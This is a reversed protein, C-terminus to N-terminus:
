WMVIRRVAIYKTIKGHPTGLYSLCSSDPILYRGTRPAIIGKKYSIRVSPLSCKFPSITFMSKHAMGVKNIAIIQIPDLIKVVLTITFCGSNLSSFTLHIVCINLLSKRQFFLYDKKIAM